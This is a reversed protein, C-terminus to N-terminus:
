ARRKFRSQAYNSPTKYTSNSTVKINKMANIQESLKRDLMESILQSDFSQKSEAQSMRGYQDALSMNISANVLDNYDFGGPAQGAKYVKDGRKKDIVVNRGSYVEMQGNTRQVIEKFKAGKADNIMVQGEHKGTLDGQELQPIPTAAVVAVQAAGLAGLVAAAVPGGFIGTQALALSIAQATNIIIQSITFAKDAIAQKRKEERIQKQLELEKAARKAEIQDREEATLRENALLNNYYEDNAAQENELRGINIEYVGSVIDRTQDLHKQAFDAIQAYKERQIQVEEDAIEKTRDRQNELEDLAAKANDQVQKLARKQSEDMLDYDFPDFDKVGEQEFLVEIGEYETKIKQLADKAKNIQGAYESWEKGNTALKSQEEELKSIVAEM